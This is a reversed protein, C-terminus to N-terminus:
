VGLNRSRLETFLSDRDLPASEKLRIVFLHWAHIGLGYSEPLHVPLASLADMYASAMQARKSNFEALRGLQSLGLAAHIESLKYNFGLNQQEYYWGAPAKKVLEDPHRTMGHSRFQRLLHEKDPISGTVMGGEGSTLNKVPNFSFATLDAISGVPHSDYTAGASHAADSLLVLGNVDAINRLSAYDSPRGAFDVAIIASTKDTILSSVHAPDICMTAEDIDAFVPTAGLHLVANATSSFTLAPVIVEDGARIGAAFCMGHIASSGTSYAVAYESRTMVQWAKELDEQVTGQSIITGSLVSVVADIDADNLNPRSYPLYSKLKKSDKSM